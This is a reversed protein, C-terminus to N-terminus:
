LIKNGKMINDKAWLPQLNSYHCLLYIESESKASSLPLIHDIHWQGYNEWSMNDTFKKELHEKLEQPSCGVLDFTKNKKSIGKKNLYKYIRCRVSNVIVFLPDYTRREKRQEHKRKKYNKRYEKRKEPNKEYFESLKYSMFNPFEKRKKREYERVCTKCEPRLGDKKTIDKRFDSLSKETKCKTCTKTIHINNNTM